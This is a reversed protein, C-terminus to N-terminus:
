TSGLSGSNKEEQHYQQNTGLSPEVILSLINYSNSFNHKFIGREGSVINRVWLMPQRLNQENNRLM